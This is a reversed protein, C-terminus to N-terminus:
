LLAGLTPAHENDACNRAAFLTIVMLKLSCTCWQCRRVSHTHSHTHILQRPAFMLLRLRRACLVCLVCLVSAAGVVFSRREVIVDAARMRRENERERCKIRGAIMAGLKECSCSNSCRENEALNLRNHPRIACRRARPIFMSRNQLTITPARSIVPHQTSIAFRHLVCRTRIETKMQMESRRLGRQLGCECKRSLLHNAASVSLSVRWKYQTVPRIYTHTSPKDVNICNRAM